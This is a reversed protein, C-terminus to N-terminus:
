LLMKVNGVREEILSSPSESPFSLAISLMESPDKKSV